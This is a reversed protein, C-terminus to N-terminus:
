WLLDQLLASLECTEDRVYKAIESGGSARCIIDKARIKRQAVRFEEKTDAHNEILSYFLSFFFYFLNYVHLHERERKRQDRCERM